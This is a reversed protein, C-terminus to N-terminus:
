CSSWVHEVQDYDRSAEICFLQGPDLGTQRLQRVVEDLDDAVTVVQGKAIGVFKNVYPSAPNTRAEANIQRALERNVEQGSPVTSM